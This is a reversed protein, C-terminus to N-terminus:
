NKFRKNFYEESVIEKIKTLGQPHDAVLKSGVKTFTEREVIWQYVGGQKLMHFVSEFFRENAKHKSAQIM